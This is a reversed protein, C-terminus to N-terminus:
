GGALGSLTLDPDGSPIRDWALQWMFLYGPHQLRAQYMRARQVNYHWYDVQGFAGHNWTVLVLSEDDFPLAGVNARWEKTINGGWSTPANSTYFVRMPVGLARTAKGISQMTGSALMDGPLIVIRGQQHLTRIYTYQDAHALWGFRPDDPRPSMAKKYIAGLRGQYGLYTRQITGLDPDDAWTQAILAVSEKTASPDFRALFAEPTESALILAKLVKHLRVVNPEYDFLFAWRSRALAILDYNQAAGVGAYAGGINLIYPTFTTLRQENTDIYTVPDRCDLDSRGGIGSAFNWSKVKEEPCVPKDEIRDAVLGNVKALDEASPPEPPGLEPWPTTVQRAPPKALSVPHFVPPDQTEAGSVVCRLAEARGATGGKMVRRTGGMCPESGGCPGLPDPSACALGCSAPEAWSRTWTAADLPSIALSGADRSAKEWEWETPLRKGAWGCYRNAMEWTLGSAAGEKPGPACFGTKVCAQYDAADVPKSDVYFTSVQVARPATLPGGPVCTMGDPAPGCPSDSLDLVAGDLASSIALLQGATVGPGVALGVPGGVTTKLTAPDLSCLTTGDTPCGSVAPVHERGRWVDIGTASIRAVTREADPAGLSVTTTGLGAPTRGLVRVSGGPETVSAALRVLDSAAVKTDIAVTEAPGVWADVRWGGPGAGLPAASLPLVAAGERHLGDAALAVTAVGGNAEGQIEPLTLAAGAPWPDGGRLAKAAALGDPGLWHAVLAALAPNGRAAVFRPAMGCGDGGLEPANCAAKWEADLGAPVALNRRGAAEEQLWSALAPPADPCAEALAGAAQSPDLSAWDAEPPCTSCAVLTPLWLVLARPSM